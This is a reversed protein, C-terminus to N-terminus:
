NKYMEKSQRLNRQVNLKIKYSESFHKHKNLESPSESFTSM